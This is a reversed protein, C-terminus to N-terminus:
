MGNPKGGHSISPTSTPFDAQCVEERSVNTEDRSPGSEVDGVEPHLCSYRQNHERGDADDAGGRRNNGSGSRRDRKCGVQTTGGSEGSHSISPAPQFPSPDRPNAGWRDAANLGSQDPSLAAQVHSPVEPTEVSELSRDPVVISADSNV